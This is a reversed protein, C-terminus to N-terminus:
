EKKKRKVRYEGTILKWWPPQDPTTLGTLAFGWLLGVLLWTPFVPAEAFPGLTFMAVGAGFLTLGMRRFQYLTSTQDAGIADLRAVATLFIILSAPLAALWSYWGPSVYFNLMHLVTLVAGGILLAWRHPKLKSLTLTKNIKM